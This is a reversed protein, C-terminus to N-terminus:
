SCGVKNVEKKINKTLVNITSYSIDRSRRRWKKKTETLSLDM